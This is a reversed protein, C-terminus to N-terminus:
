QRRLPPIPLRAPNLIGDQCCPSPEIGEEPLALKQHLFRPNQAESANKKFNQSESIKGTKQEFKNATTSHKECESALCFALCNENIKMDKHPMTIVNVFSDDTGTKVQKQSKKSPLSLDPLKAVAQSEQGTLTHTYIGMTLNVDSHRLISQAVKPHVGAAALLSGTCHRFAHFDAYHGDEDCYPIGAANLDAKLAEIIDTRRKPMDFAKVSPMKNSMFDKLATATDTRLPLTDKRRRKSYAAQLVVTAGEFDFSSVTLSKLESQRLGTEIALKYLMAREHGSMKFHVPQTETTELLLRIEDPSLARRKRGEEIKSNIQKLHKLPNENARRDQVMWRCFQKVAQLYYNSTKASIGKVTTENKITPKRMNALVNQIGSASIDTWSVAKSSDLITKARNYTKIAHGKTNGKSILFDKFDNLHQDLLKAKLTIHVDLLGIRILYRSLKSPINECWKSLQPDHTEGAIKFNILKQIMRGLTESQRKDEFAPVRRVTEHNDRFEIYWKESRKKQKNKDTYTAKFVRM